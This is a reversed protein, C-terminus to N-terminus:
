DSKDKSNIKRNNKDTNNLKSCSNKSKTLTKNKLNRCNGKVNNLNANGTMKNNENINNSKFGRRWSKMSLRKNRFQTEVKKYLMLSTM